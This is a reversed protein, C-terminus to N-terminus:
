KGKRKNYGSKPKGKPKSGTRKMLWPPMKKPPKKKPM